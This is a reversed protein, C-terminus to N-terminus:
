EVPLFLQTRWKAPDPVMGPDTWYTEWSGGRPQLKRAAAQRRLEDHAARLEEYPGFHWTMLARGAPLESSKVRGKGPIAKAIPIGAEVDLQDGDRGLIRTYPVGGALKAGSEKVCGIVEPFVTALTAMLESAKCQFRIAATPQAARDVLEYPSSADSTRAAAKVVVEPLRQRAPDLAVGREVKTCTMSVEMSGMRVTRRCPFDAGDFRKWDGFRVQAESWEPFGFVFVCDRSTPLELDIRAVRASEPEIWWMDAAGEPPTMTLVVHPRGALERTGRSEVNRYLEGAPAGRLLAFYRELVVEEAGDHVKAGANPEIEWVVGDAFGREQDVVDPMSSTHRFSTRGDWSERFTGSVVPESGAEDFRLEFVGEVALTDLAKTSRGRAADVRALLEATAADPTKAQALASAGFLLLVAPTLASPCPDM